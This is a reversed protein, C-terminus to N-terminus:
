APRSPESMIMNGSINVVPYSSLMTPGRMVSSASGTFPGVMVANRSAALCAPTYTHSGDREIVIVQRTHREIAGHKDIAFAVHRTDVVLLM